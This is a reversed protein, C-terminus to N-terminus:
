NEGHIYGAVQVSTLHMRDFRWGDPTAVCQMEIKILMNAALSTIETPKDPNYRHMTVLATGHASAGDIVDFRINSIAHIGVSPRKRAALGEWMTRIAAQGKVAPNADASWEGDRTFIPWIKLPNTEDLGEGYTLLLTSCEDKIALREIATPEAALATAGTLLALSALMAKM